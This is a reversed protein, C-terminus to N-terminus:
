IFHRRGRHTRDAYRPIVLKYTRLLGASSTGNRRPLSKPDPAPRWRLYYSRSRRIAYYTSRLSLGIPGHRRCRGAALAAWDVTPTTRDGSHPALTLHKHDFLTRVVVYSRKVEGCVVCKRPRVTGLSVVARDVHIDNLGGLLWSSCGPGLALYARQTCRAEKTTLRLVNIVDITPDAALRIAERTCGSGSV